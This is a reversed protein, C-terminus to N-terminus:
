QAPFPPQWWPPHPGVEVRDVWKVWRYGRSGRAVLRVPAGHGDRLPQGDYGDALLLDDLDATDFRVWYGTRSTVTLSRAGGLDRVLERLPVGDWDQWAYWGGTCDLAVRRTERPLRRLDEPSYAATGAADRVTVRWAAVDIEPRDDALWIVRPMRAPDFSALEYSGTFRRRAGRLGTVRVAVETAAWAGAGTAAVAAWRLLNRRRLDHRRPRTPRRAVHWAALPVAALGLAVHWWLASTRGGLSGGLGGLDVAAGTAHLYGTVLAAVVAIALGLSVWRDRRGRGWGRRGIRTKWPVLAVLALGAVGHAVVVWRGAPDGAAWTGLGTALVVVLGALLALNTARTPPPRRM